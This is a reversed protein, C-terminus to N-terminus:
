NSKKLEPDLSALHSGSSSCLVRGSATAGLSVLSGGDPVPQSSTCVTWLTLLSWD